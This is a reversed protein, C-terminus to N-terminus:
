PALSSPEPELRLSDSYTGSGRDTILDFDRAVSRM